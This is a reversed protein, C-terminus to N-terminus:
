ENGHDQERPPRTCTGRHRKGCNDCKPKVDSSSGEQPGTSPKSDQPAPEMRPKGNGGKRQEWPKSGGPASNRRAEQKPKGDKADGGGGAAGSQKPPKSSAPTDLCNGERSLAAFDDRTFVGNTFSLGIAYNKAGLEREARYAEKLARFYDCLLWLKPVTTNGPDFNANFLMRLLVKGHPDGRTAARRLMARAMTNFLRQAEQRKAMPPPEVAGASRDTWEQDQQAREIATKAVGFVDCFDGVAYPACKDWTALLWQYFDPGIHAPMTASGWADEIAATKNDVLNGDLPYNPLSVEQIVSLLKFFQDHSMTKWSDRNYSADLWHLKRKDRLSEGTFDDISTQITRVNKADILQQREDPTLWDAVAVQKSFAVLSSRFEGPHYAWRAQPARVTVPKAQM